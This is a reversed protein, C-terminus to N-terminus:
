LELWHNHGKGSIKLRRPVPQCLESRRNIITRAMSSLYFLCVGKPVGKENNQMHDVVTITIVRTVLKTAKQLQDFENVVQLM